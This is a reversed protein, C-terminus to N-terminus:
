NKGPFEPFSGSNPRNFSGLPRGCRCDPIMCARPLFMGFQMQSMFSNPCEPRMPYAPPGRLIQSLFNLNQASSSAPNPFVSTSRSPSPVNPAGAGLAQQQLRLRYEQEIQYVRARELQEASNFQEFQLPLPVLFIFFM